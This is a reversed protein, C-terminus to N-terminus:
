DRHEHDVDVPAVPNFGPLLSTFFGVLLMRLELLVGHGGPAPALAATAAAAARVGGDGGVGVAGGNGGAGGDGEGGAGDNDRRVDAMGAVGGAAAAAAPAAQAPAPPRPAPVMARLRPGLWTHLRLVGTQQLYFLVAGVSMVVLRTRSGEQMVDLQLWRV